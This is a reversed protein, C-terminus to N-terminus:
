TMVGLEKAVQALAAEVVAQDRRDPPVFANYMERLGVLAASRLTVNELAEEFHRRSESPRRIFSDLSCARGTQELMILPGTSFRDTSVEKIRQALQSAANREALGQLAAKMKTLYDVQNFGGLCTAGNELLVSFSLLLGPLIARDALKRLIQQQSLDLRLLSGVLNSDHEAFRYARGREDRGWFLHSGGGENSWAGAIGEFATITDPLLRQNLLLDAQEGQCLLDSVVDELQLVIMQPMGPGLCESFLARNILSVQDSFHEFDYLHEIRSIVDGLEVPLREFKTKESASLGYVLAHKASDPYLPYRLDDFIVGRPFSANNLPVNGTALVVLYRLSSRAAGCIAMIDGQFVVPHSCIGHHDATGITGNQLLQIEVENAIKAGFLRETRRAIAQALPPRMGAAGEFLSKAHDGISFDGRRELLDFLAPRFLAVANYIKQGVSESEVRRQMSIRNHSIM